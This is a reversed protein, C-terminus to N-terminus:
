IVATIRRALRSRSEHISLTGGQEPKPARLFCTDPIDCGELKETEPMSARSGVYSLHEKPVRRIQHSWPM